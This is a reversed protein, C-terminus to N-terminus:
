FHKMVSEAFKFDTEFDFVPSSANILFKAARVRTDSDKLSTDSYHWHLHVISCQNVTAM